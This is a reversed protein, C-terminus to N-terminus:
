QEERTVILKVGEVDIIKVEQDKKLSEDKRTKGAWDLGDIFVRGENTLVDFDELVIAKKGILEHVNTLVIKPKLRKVAYPRLLLLTICSVAIFVILQTALDFGFFSLFVCVLSGAAFWIAVLHQTIVEVICIFLFFAIWGIFLHEMNSGGKYM